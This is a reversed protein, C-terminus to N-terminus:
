IDIESGPRAIDSRWHHKNHPDVQYLNVEFFKNHQSCKFNKFSFTLLINLSGMCPMNLPKM